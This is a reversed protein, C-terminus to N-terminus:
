PAAAALCGPLRHPYGAPGLPGRAPRPLGPDRSLAPRHRPLDGAPGPRDAVGHAAARRKRRRVRFGPGDPPPAPRNPRDARVAPGARRAPRAAFPAAPVRARPGPGHARCPCSADDDIRWSADRRPRASRSAASSSGGAAYHLVLQYIIVLWLNNVYKLCAHSRQSSRLYAPRDFGRHQQRGAVRLIRSLECAETSGPPEATAFTPRPLSRKAVIAAALAGISM